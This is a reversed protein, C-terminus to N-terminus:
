HYSKPPNKPYEFRNNPPFPKNIYNLDKLRGTSQKEKQQTEWRLFFFLCCSCLQSEVKQLQHLLQRSSWGLNVCDLLILYFHRTEYDVDLILHYHRTDYEFDLFLYFHRTDNEFDHILYFHWTYYSTNFIPNANSGSKWSFQSASIATL